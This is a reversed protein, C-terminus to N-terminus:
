KFAYIFQDSANSQKILPTNDFEKNLNLIREVTADNALTSFKDRDNIFHNNENLPPLVKSNLGNNEQLLDRMINSYLETRESDTNHVEFEKANKLYEDVLLGPNLVFQNYLAKDKQKIHGFITRIINEAMRVRGDADQSEQVVEGLNVDYAINGNPFRDILQMLYSVEIGYDKPIRLSQWIEKPAACGGSLPGNFNSISPYIGLDKDLIKMMPRALTRANVSKLLLDNDGVSTNNKRCEEVIPEYIDELDFTAKSLITKPDEFPGVLGYVFRPDINQFDSDVFLVLDGKAVALGLYMASGKGPASGKVPKQDGYLGEFRPDFVNVAKIPLDQYNSLSDIIWKSSTLDTMASQLAADVTKMNDSSDAIIIEDICGKSILDSFAPFYKSITKYENRSPLVLSISRDGKQPSERLLHNFDKYHKHNIEM